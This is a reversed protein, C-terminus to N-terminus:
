SFVEALSANTLPKNIVSKVNPLLSVYTLLRESSNSSLFYVEIDLNDEIRMRELYESLEMGELYPMIEDLFITIKGHPVHGESFERKSFKLVEESNDIISIEVESNWNRILAEHALNDLANDDILIVQGSM